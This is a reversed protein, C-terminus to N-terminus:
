FPDRPAGEVRPVPVPTIEVAPPNPLPEIVAPTAITAPPTDIQVETNTKKPAPVTEKPMKKPPAVPEAAPAPAATGGCAGSSCGGDCCENRGFRDRLKSLFNFSHGGCPDACTPAACKPEQCGTKFLPKHEHCTTPQCSDCNDRHFLGQLRDRLKHGWTECGCSDCNGCSAAAVPAAPAAPPAPKKDGAQGVLMAGTVLLFAANM